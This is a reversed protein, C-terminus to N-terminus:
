HEFAERELKVFPFYLLITLAQFSVLSCNVQPFLFIRKGCDSILFSFPINKEQLCFCTEALVEVSIKINSTSEFLLAKIPYDILSSIRIGGLGSDWLTVM